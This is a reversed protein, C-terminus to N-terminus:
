SLDLVRGKNPQYSCIEAFRYNKAAPSLGELWSRERYFDSIYIHSFICNYIENMVLICGIPVCLLLLRTYINKHSKRFCVSCEVQWSSVELAPPMQRLVTPYIVVVFGSRNRWDQRIWPVSSWSTLHFSTFFTCGNLLTNYASENNDTGILAIIEGYTGFTSTPPSTSGFPGLYDYYTGSCLGISLMLKVLFTLLLTPQPGPTLVYLALVQLAVMPM